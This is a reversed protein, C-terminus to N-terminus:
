QQQLTLLSNSLKFTSWQIKGTLVTFPRCPERSRDRRRSEVWTVESINELCSVGSRGGPSRTSSKM